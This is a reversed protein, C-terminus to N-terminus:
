VTAEETAPAEADDKKYEGLVDLTQEPDINGHTDDGILAMPAAGCNGLCSATQL